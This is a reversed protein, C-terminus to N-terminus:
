NFKLSDKTEVIPKGVPTAYIAIVLVLPNLETILRIKGANSMAGIQPEATEVEPLGDNIVAHTGTSGV